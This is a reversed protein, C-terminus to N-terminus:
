KRTINYSMLIAIPKTTPFKSLIIKIMSMIPVCLLMGVIGWVYGWFILSFLILIPSLNLADGLIKPEILNGIVMGVVVLVILLIIPVIINDYQILATLFPLLTSVFAGINPIYTMFFTLLGWVIAFDVGFIWFIITAIIAHSLNILTKYVIYERVDKFIDDLIDAIQAAREPSYAKRIRVRINRWESLLFIIYILIMIFHGFIGAVSSVLDTILTTITGEKLINEFKISEQISETNIGYNKLTTIIEGYYAVFKTEYKPMQSTFSNISTFVFVSSINSILIICLLVIVIGLWGPIKKKLMWEYFPTFLFTIIIALFLPLLILQLEKMVFFTFGILFLAAAISLFRSYKIEVM